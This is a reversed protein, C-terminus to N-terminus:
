PHNWLTPRKQTSTRPFSKTTTRARLSPDPQREVDLIRDRTCPNSIIRSQSDSQVRNYSPHSLRACSRPHFWRGPPFQSEERHRGRRDSRLVSNGPYDRARWRSEFHPAFLSLPKVHSLLLFHSVVVFQARGAVFLFHSVATSHTVTM